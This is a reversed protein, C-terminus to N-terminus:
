SPAQPRLRKGARRVQATAPQKELYTQWDFCGSCHNILWNYLVDAERLAALSEDSRPARSLYAAYAKLALWSADQLQQDQAAECQFEATWQRVVSAPFNPWKSSACVWELSRGSANDIPWLLTRRQANLFRAWRLREAATKGRSLHAATRWLKARASDYPAIIAAARKWHGAAAQRIGLTLAARGALPTRLLARLQQDSLLTELVYSRENESLEPVQLAAAIQGLALHATFAIQATDPSPPTVAAQAIADQWRGRHALEALRLQGWLATPSRPTDPYGEPLEALSLAFLGGARGLGVVRLLREQLNVAWAADPHAEALRWLRTWETPVITTAVGVMATLLLPDFPQRAELKALSVEASSYAFLYRLDALVRQAHRPYVDLLMAAAESPRGQFRRLRVRQLEVLLRLPHQPYDRLWADIAQDIPAAADDPITDWADGIQARLMQQIVVFRLSAARAQAPDEALLGAADTRSKSRIVAAREFVLPLPAVDNAIPSHWALFYEAALDDSLASRYPALELYEVARRLAHNHTQAVDQPMDLIVAVIAEAAVTAAPWDRATLAADFAAVDPKPAAVPQPRTLTRCHARLADCLRIEVLHPNADFSPPTSNVHERSDGNDYREIILESFGPSSDDYPFGYASVWLPEYAPGAAQRFPYLFRFEDRLVNDYGLAPNSIWETDLPVLRAPLYEMAPGGCAAAQETRAAGCVALLALGIRWWRSM